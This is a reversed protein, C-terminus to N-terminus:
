STADQRAKNILTRVENQMEPSMMQLGFSRLDDEYVPTNLHMMNHIVFEEISPRVMRKAGSSDFRTLYQLDSHFLLDGVQIAFSKLDDKAPKTRWIRPDIRWKEESIGRTNEFLEMLKNQITQAREGLKDPTIAEPDFNDWHAIAWYVAFLNMEELREKIKEFIKIENEAPDKAEKKELIKEEIYNKFAGIFRRTTMISQHASNKNEPPLASLLASLHNTDFEEDSKPMFNDWTKNNEITFPREGHVSRNTETGLRTHWSRIKLVDMAAEHADQWTILFDLIDQAEQSLDEVKLEHIKGGELYRVSRDSFDISIDTANPHDKKVQEVIKDQFDGQGIKRGDNFSVKLHGISITIDDAGKDWYLKILKQGGKWLENTLKTLREDKIHSKVSAGRVRTYLSCEKDADSDKAPRMHAHPDIKPRLKATTPLKAHTAQISVAGQGDTSPIAQYGVSSM